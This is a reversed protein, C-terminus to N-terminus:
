RVNIEGPDKDVTHDTKLKDKRSPEVNYLRFFRAVWELFKKKKKTEDAPNM